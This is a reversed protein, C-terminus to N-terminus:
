ATLLEGYKETSISFHGTARPLPLEHGAMVYRDLAAELTAQAQEVAEEHDRGYAVAAPVDPFTAIVLGDYRHALKLAYTLM